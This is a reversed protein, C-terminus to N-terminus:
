IIALATIYGAMIFGIARPLAGFFIFHKWNINLSGAVVPLYPLPSIAAILLVIKGYKDVLEQFRTIDGKAVFSYTVELGKKKGIWFGLTSGLLSGIIIFLLALPLNLGFYITVVLALHPSFFQPILELLFGILFLGPFGYVGVIRSIEARFQGYYVFSLVLLATLVLSFLWGVIKWGRKKM